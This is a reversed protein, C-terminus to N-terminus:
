IHNGTGLRRELTRIDSLMGLEIEGVPSWYFM